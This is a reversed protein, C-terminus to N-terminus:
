GASCAITCEGNDNGQQAMYHPRCEYCISGTTMRRMYRPCRFCSSRDGLRAGEECAQFVFLNNQAANYAKAVFLDLTGDAFSLLSRSM